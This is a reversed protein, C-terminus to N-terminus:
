YGPNQVLKSNTQFGSTPIPFIRRYTDANNKGLGYTNEYKGFRIMDNRHWGEYAMERAREAYLGELDITTLAASTTRNSRIQNVLSLATAGLTPAGGRLIAEAKMLLIDSYRFVPFDNNQNRNIPNTNDALFKNNRYGTNWAIEDRGLDYDSNTGARPRFTLQSLVLPYVVKGGPDSGTYFQNYGINTTSVMIPSGDPWTQQGTLWQKNRIDNPDNFYAYYEATTMSPGSPRNNVLGNGTNQNIVPNTYGGATSGSYGYRIGLNRNLNYRAFILNGSTLSADYPIAFIFEKQTTPGNTPYFMQLYSAMPEVSYKNDGIIKDCAAICDDYRQTGTYVAANLYMKALLSYAFYKTVLGYTTPNVDSKLYPIAAKLESEVFNFVQARTSQPQSEKTGYLTDLPINGFSDMGIYYAFARLTKLEAVSASKAASAPASKFISLTQNTVGIMNTYYYWVANIGSNDKTWTHRHLEMYRNGDIWDPGFVALLNEDTTHSQSFFYAGTYDSRLAVYVSGTVAQYQAPTQPFVDPTLQTNVQIDTKHCSSFVVAMCAASAITLFINKM